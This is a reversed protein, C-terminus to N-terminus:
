DGKLPLAFPGLTVGLFRLSLHRAFLVVGSLHPGVHDLLDRLPDHGQKTFCPEGFWFRAKHVCCGEGLFESDLAVPDICMRLFEASYAKSSGLTPQAKVPDRHPLAEARLGLNPWKRM